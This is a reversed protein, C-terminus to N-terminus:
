PILIFEVNSLDNPKYEIKNVRYKRNKIMVKNTFDFNHIDSADLNVKLTMIRTNINYLEFYYKAWYSNFLNSAPASGIPNILQCEGFNYDVTDTSLPPNSIVTPVTSLHSFQLFEAQNESSLGNAEPIYYTTGTSKVGNNYLIRPLNDYGENETNDDNSSFISPVIFSAFVTYLPKIITAAFPSGLIEEEGELLTFEFQNKADWIKEGYLKGNTARKYESFAYDDDDEEYKFTTKSLLSLPKLKIQTADVKDTWDLKINRELLTTGATIVNFMDDYPEIILRGEKTNDELVILNFMNFIGKLFDWQGLGGRETNLLTNSTTAILSVSAVLKASYPGYIRDQKITGGSGRFQAELTDGLALTITFNGIYWYRTNAGTTTVTFTVSTYDIEGNPYIGGSSNKHVWRFEGTAGSTVNFGYLYDMNYTAGYSQATFKYNTWGMETTPLPLFKNIELESYTGTATNDVLALSSLYRGETTGEFDSPASGTGWNFDMFLKTFKKTNLFVSTYTFGSSAFINDVLYKCNIFPRFADELTKLEPCDINAGVTTSPSTIDINGTWDVFPYKLVQTHTDNYAGAFSNIGLPTSLLIGTTDWSGKINSKNYLHDLENLVTLDSINKSKLEDILTISTSFLNVSYSIEKNKELIDILRLYGKFINFGDQKLICQTKKYPNFSYIDWRKTVEFLHSFIKNNIKTAPLKFDKSYSQTKEAVNKFNDVSLSLPIDEEEYMDCIVEGNELDTYVLTPTSASEKISIHNIHITSGNTNTYSLALIEETNDAVFTTTLYGINGTGFVPNLTGDQLTTISGTITGGAAGVYLFGGAGAQTIKIKLEYSAGVTLGNILQYVGSISAVVNSASHLELKNANSRSPMDCDTWYPNSSPRFRKWSSIPTDNNIADATVYQATSYFGGHSPLTNFNTNDVVYQNFVPTSVSSYTGDLAQPLLVLQISM